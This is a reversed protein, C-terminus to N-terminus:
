RLKIAISGPESGSHSALRLIQLQQGHNSHRSWAPVGRALWRMRPYGAVEGSATVAM